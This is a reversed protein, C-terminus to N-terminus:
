QMNLPQFVLEFTWNWITHHVLLVDKTKPATSPKIALIAVNEDGLM